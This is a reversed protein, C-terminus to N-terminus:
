TCEHCAVHSAASASVSVSRRGLVALALATRELTSDESLAQAEDAEEPGTGHGSLWASMLVVRATCTVHRTGSLSSPCRTNLLTHPVSACLLVRDCSTVVVLPLVAPECSAHERTTVPRLGGGASTVSGSTLLAPRGAQRDHQYASSAQRGTMCLVAKPRLVWAMSM